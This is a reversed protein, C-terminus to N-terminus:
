LSVAANTYVCVCVCVCRNMCGQPSNLGNNLIQARAAGLPYIYGCVCKYLCISVCSVRGVGGTRMAVGWCAWFRNIIAQLILKPRSSDAIPLGSDFAEGEPEESSMPSQVLPRPNARV